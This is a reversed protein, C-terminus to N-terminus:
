SLRPKNSYCLQFTTLGFIVRIVSFFIVNKELPIYISDVYLTHSQVAVLSSGAEGRAVSGLECIM